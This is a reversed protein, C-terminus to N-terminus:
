ENDAHSAEGLIITTIDQVGDTGDAGTAPPREGREMELLAKGGKLIGGRIDPWQKRILEHASGFEDVLVADPRLLEASIRSMIVGDLALADRVLATAVLKPDRALADRLALADRAAATRQDLMGENLAAILGPVDAPRRKKSRNRRDAKVKQRATPQATAQPQGSSNGSTKTKDSM